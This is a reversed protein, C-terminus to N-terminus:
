KKKNMQNVAMEIGNTSDKCAAIYYRDDSLIRPDSEEEILCISLALDGGEYIGSSMVKDLIRLKSIRVPERFFGIVPTEGPLQYLVATVKGDAKAGVKNREKQEITLRKEEVSALLQEQTYEPKGGSSPASVIVNDGNAPPPAVTPSTQTTAEM